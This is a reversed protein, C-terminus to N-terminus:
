GTKEGEASFPNRTPKEVRIVRIKYRALGIPVRL